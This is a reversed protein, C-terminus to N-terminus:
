SYDLFLRVWLGVELHSPHTHSLPVCMIYTPSVTAGIQRGAGHQHSVLQLMSISATISMDHITHPQALM